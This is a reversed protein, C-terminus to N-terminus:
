QSLGELLKDMDPRNGTWIEHSLVAQGVLMSWGNKISYGAAQALQLIPTVPQNYKLDFVLTGPQLQAMQAATLATQQNFMGVTTADIVLQYADLSVQDLTKLPQSLLQNVQQAHEDFNAGPRNVVDLLIGAPKAAMIARAAGGAGLLLVHAQRSLSESVALWFGAGDTTTGILRQAQDRYITNVAQTKKSIETVADLYPMIEHKYPTTVNAGVLHNLLQPLRESFNDPSLDFLEYNAAIHESAFARNQIKPSLSHQIQWGILGYTQM